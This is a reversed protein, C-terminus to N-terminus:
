IRFQQVRQHLEGGLHALETTSGAMKENTQASQEAISRVHEVNHSIEAAVASQEEAATAIKQNLQEISNVADTILTLAQRAQDSYAVAERSLQASGTMQQVTRESMTQLEAILLEIERTSAQTRKALTRVADAVVAFGRGQEGARAAEIAANLALLNTQEAVAKIVDLVGGIRGSCEHLHQITQVSLDVDEALRGIQEATQRVVREGAGAQQNAQRAVQLAEEAHRAVAEASYAMQQTATAAQETQYQQSCAGASSQRSAEELGGTARHLQDIGQVIRKVLERLNITMTSMAQCLQGLEDRRGTTIDRSLDGAAISQALVLTQRLPPLILQRIVWGALTALGLIVMASIVLVRLISTSRRVMQQQHTSLAQDTDRMVRDALQKMKEAGRENAIRNASYQKFAVRYSIIAEQATQLVDKQEASIRTQLLSVSNETAQMLEEWEKLCQEGGQQVYCYERNRLALLLRLLESANEAFTLTDANLERHTAITARLASYMELEVFEFQMRAEDAQKQMDKLAQAAQHSDTVFQGFQKRYAQASARIQDLGVLNTADDVILGNAHQELAALTVDVLQAPRKDANLAFDKEASRAQQLLLNMEAIAQNQRNDNLLTQTSQFAIALAVLSLISVMGFALMLKRGVQLDVLGSRLLTLM